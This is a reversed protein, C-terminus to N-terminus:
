ALGQLGLLSRLVGIMEDQEEPPKSHFEWMLISLLWLRALGTESGSQVRFIFQFLTDPVSSIKDSFDELVQDWLTIATSEFLVVLAALMLCAASAIKNEAVVFPNASEEISRAPDFHQRLFATAQPELNTSGTSAKCLQFFDVYRRRWVEPLDTNEENEGLLSGLPKKLGDIKSGWQLQLAEQCLLHAHLTPNSRFIRESGGRTEVLHLVANWHVAAAAHNHRHSEVCALTAATLITVDRYTAQPTALESRLGQLAEAEYITPAVGSAEGFESSGAVVLLAFFANMAAHNSQYLPQSAESLFPFKRRDTILNTLLLYDRPKLRCECAANLAQLEASEGIRPPSLTKVLPEQSPRRSQLSYDLDKPIERFSPVSPVSLQRAREPQYTQSGLFTIQDIPADAESSGQASRRARHSERMVHVRVAEHVTAREAKADVFMYQKQAPRGEQPTSRSSSSSSPTSATRTRAMQSARGRSRKRREGTATDDETTDTRRTRDPRDTMSITTRSRRSPPNLAKFHSPLQWQYHAALM